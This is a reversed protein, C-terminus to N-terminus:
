GRGRQAGTRKGHAMRADESVSEAACARQLNLLWQAMRIVRGNRDGGPLGGVLREAVRAAVTSESVPEASAMVSAGIPGVDRMFKRVDAVSRPKRKGRPM